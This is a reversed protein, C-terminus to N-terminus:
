HWKVYMASQFPFVFRLQLPFLLLLHWCLKGKFYQTTQCFLAPFFFLNKKVYINYKISLPFSFQSFYYLVLLFFFFTCFFLSMLMLKWKFYTHVRACFVVCISLFLFGWEINFSNHFHDPITAPMTTVNSYWPFGYCIWTDAVIKNRTWPLVITPPICWFFFNNCFNICIWM